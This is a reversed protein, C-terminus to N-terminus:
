SVSHFAYCYQSGCPRYSCLRQIDNSTMAVAKGDFHQTGTRIGGEKNLLSKLEPGIGHHNSVLTLISLDLFSQSVTIHLNKSTFLRHSIHHFHSAYVNNYSSDNSKGSKFRGQTGYFMAFRHSQGVLLSHHHCTGDDGIGSHPM